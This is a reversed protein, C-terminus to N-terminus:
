NTEVSDRHGKGRRGFEIKVLTFFTSSVPFLFIFIDFTSQTPYSDTDPFSNHSNEGRVQGNGPVGGDM